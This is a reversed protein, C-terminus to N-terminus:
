LLLSLYIDIDFFGSSIRDHSRSLLTHMKLGQSHGNAIFLRFTVKDIIGDIINVDLHLFPPIIGIMRLLGDVFLALATFGLIM